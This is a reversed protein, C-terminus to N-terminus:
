EIDSYKVWGEIVKKGIYKIKVWDTQKQIIEIQDGRILYM